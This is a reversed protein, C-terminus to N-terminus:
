RGILGKERERVLIDSIVSKGVPNLRGGETEYKSQLDRLQARGLPTALLAQLEKERESLTKAPNM